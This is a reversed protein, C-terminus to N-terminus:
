SKNVRGILTPMVSDFCQGSESSWVIYEHDGAFLGEPTVHKARCKWGYLNKDQDFRVLNAEGPVFMRTANNWSEPKPKFAM